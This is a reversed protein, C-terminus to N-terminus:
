GKKDSVVGGQKGGEGTSKLQFQIALSLDLPKLVICPKKENDLAILLFGWSHPAQHLLTIQNIIGECFWRQEMEKGMRGLEKVM